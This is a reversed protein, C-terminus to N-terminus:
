KHKRGIIDKKARNVDQFFKRYRGVLAQGMFSHPSPTVKGERSGELAADIDEGFDDGRQKAHHSLELEFAAWGAEAHPWERVKELLTGLHTTLLERRTERSLFGYEGYDVLCPRLGRGERRVIFHGREFGDFKHIDKGEGGFRDLNFMRHVTHATERGLKIIDKEALGSIDVAKIYEELMLKEEPKSWVVKPGTDEESAITSARIESEPFGSHTPKFRYVMLIERNPESGHVLIHTAWPRLWSVEGTETSFSIKKAMESDFEEDIRQLIGPIDHSEFGSEQLAKTTPQLVDDFDLIRKGLVARGLRKLVMNRRTKPVEIDQLIRDVVERYESPTASIYNQIRVRNILDDVLARAVEPALIGSRELDITLTRTVVDLLGIPGEVIRKRIEKAGAETLPQVRRSDDFFSKWQKADDGIPVGAIRFNPNTLNSEVTEIQRALLARLDPDEVIEPDILTAAYAGWARTNIHNRLLEGRMLFADTHIAQEITDNRMAGKDGSIDVAKSWDLMQTTIDEGRGCVMIHTAPLNSRYIFRADECMAILDLARQRGFAACEDQTLTTGTRRLREGKLGVDEEILYDGAVIVKPGLTKEIGHYQVRRGAAYEAAEIEGENHPIKVLLAAQVKREERNRFVVRDTIRRSKIEVPDHQVIIETNKLTLGSQRILGKIIDPGDDCLFKFFEPKVVAEYPEAEPLGERSIKIDPLRELVEGAVNPMASSIDSVIRPIFEKAEDIAGADMGTGNMLMWGVGPGGDVGTFEPLKKMPQHKLALFRTDLQSYTAVRSDASRLVAETTKEPDQNRLNFIIYQYLATRAQQEANHKQDGVEEIYSKAM